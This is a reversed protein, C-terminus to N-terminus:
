DFHSKNFSGSDQCKSAVEMTVVFALLCRVQPAIEDKYATIASGVAVAASERM